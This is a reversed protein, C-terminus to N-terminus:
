KKNLRTIISSRINVDFYLRLIELVIHIRTAIIYRNTYEDQRIVIGALNAKVKSFDELLVNPLHWVGCGSLGEPSLDKRVLGTKLNVIKNRRYTLILNTDKFNNLEGLNDNNYLETLFKFPTVKMEQKLHNFKTKRWPFGMILFNNSNQPMYDFNLDDGNIFEYFGSLFNYSAIDLEGIAIDTYESINDLDSDVFYFKGDLIHYLKNELFCLEGIKSKKNEYVIHGATIIFYRQKIKL